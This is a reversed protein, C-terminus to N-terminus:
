ALDEEKEVARQMLACGKEEVLHVLDTEDM